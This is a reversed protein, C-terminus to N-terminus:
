HGFHREGKKELLSCNGLKTGPQISRVTFAACNFIYAALFTSTITTHMKNLQIYYFTNCSYIIQKAKINNFLTNYFKIM